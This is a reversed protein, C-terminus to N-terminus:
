PLKLAATDVVDINMKLRDRSDIHIPKALTSLAAYVKPDRYAIDEGDTVAILFYDGSPITHLKYSGDSNSQDIRYGSLSRDRPLLLVCAGIQPAGSKQVIGEVTAVAPTLMLDRHVMEGPELDVTLPLHEGSAGIAYLAAYDNNGATVEYRGSPIRRVTFAGGATVQSRVANGKENRLTVFLGANPAPGEGDFSVRGSLSGMGAPRLTVDMDSSGAVVDQTLFWSSPGSGAESTAVIEYPGAPVNEFEFTADPRVSTELFSMRHDSIKKYLIVRGSSKDPVNLTGHISVANAFPLTISLQTEGGVEVRVPAAEEFTPASPYFTTAFASGRFGPDPSYQPVPLNVDDSDGADKDVAVPTPPRAAAMKAVSQRIRDEAIISNAFWPRGMACLYYNGRPLNFFRFEGLANARTQGRAILRREGGYVAWQYIAVLANGVPESDPDKVQGSIVGGRWAEFVIQTTDLDDRVVIGSSVGAYGAQKYHQSPYGPKMVQLSYLDPKTVTFSFRGDKKTVQETKADPSASLAISVHANALPAHSQSDVVIGSVAYYTQASLGAAFIFSLALLLARIRATKM